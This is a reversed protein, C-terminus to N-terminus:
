VTSEILPPVHAGLDSGPGQLTHSVGSPLSTPAAPARCEVKGQFCQLLPAPPAHPANYDGHTAPSVGTGAPCSLRGKGEGECSFPLSFPSLSGQNHGLQLQIVWGKKGLVDSATQSNGSASSPLYVTTTCMQPWMLGHPCIAPMNAILEQGVPDPGSCCPLSSYGSVARLHLLGVHALCKDLSGDSLSHKGEPTECM